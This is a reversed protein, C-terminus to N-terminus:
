AARVMRRSVVPTLVEPPAVSIVAAAFLAWFFSNPKLLTSETVNYLAFVMLYTLPWLSLPRRARVARLANLFAAGFAIMFLSVGTLGLELALDILGNHANPARWKLFMWVGEAPANDGSWFAQYGYGLWRRESVKALTTEWLETRGTLTQDRGLNNLLTPTNPLLYTNVAVTAVVALAGAILPVAFRPSRAAIWCVLAAPSLVAVTLATVSEAPVLLAALGVAYATHWLRRPGNTIAGVASAV